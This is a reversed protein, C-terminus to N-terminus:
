RISRPLYTLPYASLGQSNWISLIAHDARDPDALVYSREMGDLLPIPSKSPHTLSELKYDTFSPTM